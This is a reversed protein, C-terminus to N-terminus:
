SLLVSIVYQAILILIVNVGLFRQLERSGLILPLSM